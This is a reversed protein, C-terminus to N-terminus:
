FQNRYPEIGAPQDDPAEWYTAAEPDAKRKLPDGAILRYLLASPMIVFYFGIALGTFTLLTGLALVVATFLRHVPALGAPFALALLLLVAAISWQIGPVHGTWWWRLCGVIFLAAALKVGFPRLSVRNIDPNPSM